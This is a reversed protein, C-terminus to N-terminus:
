QPDKIIKSSLGFLNIRDTSENDGVMVSNKLDIRFDECAKLIMGPEPKRLLSHKKYKEINGEPHYPCYYYADVFINLRKLYAIIFETTSISDEETFLGKAIGAQNTVIIVLMGKEKAKKMLEISKEKFTLNKGCVYGTDEIITGDRDIFLAPKRVNKVIKPIISQAVEYDRPIGIDIFKGGMPLGLIQKNSVLVPLISQELSLNEGKYKEYLKFLARKRFFYIGGNIYGDVWGYPLSGKENFKVIRYENDIEVVGYRSFDNSYRLVVLSEPNRVKIFENFISFQIDFFTDGNILIFEDELSHWANFLAGATGLPQKERVYEINIEFEEGNLFYNEIKESKYGTLFLFKKFGNERLLLVLYELFPKNGIQAMPKPVENVVGRLRTGLGGVLIAVQYSM